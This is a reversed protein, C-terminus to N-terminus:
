PLYLNGLREFVNIFHLKVSISIDPVSAFTELYEDFTDHQESFNGVIAALSWFHNFHLSHQRVAVKTLHIGRKVDEMFVDQYFREAREQYDIEM